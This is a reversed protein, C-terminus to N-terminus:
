LTLGQENTSGIGMCSINTRSIGLPLISSMKTWNYGRNTLIDYFKHASPSRTHIYSKHIFQHKRSSIM